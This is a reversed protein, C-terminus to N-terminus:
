ELEFFHDCSSANTRLDFHFESGVFVHSVRSSNTSQEVFSIFFEFYLDGELGHIIRDMLHYQILEFLSM